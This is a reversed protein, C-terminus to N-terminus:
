RCHEDDGHHGCWGEERHGYRDIRDGHDWTYPGRDREVICGNLGMAGIAMLMLLALRSTHM